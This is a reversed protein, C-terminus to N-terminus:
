KTCPRDARCWPMSPLRAPTRSQTDRQLLHCISKEAEAIHDARLHVYTIQELSLGLQTMGRLFIPYIATRQPIFNLYGASDAALLPFYSPLLLTAAAYL